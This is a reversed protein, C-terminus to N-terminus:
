INDLTIKNTYLDIITSKWTEKDDQVHKHVIIDLESWLYYEKRLEPPKYVANQIFEKLEDRFAKEHDPILTNIKLAIVLSDRAIHQTEALPETM